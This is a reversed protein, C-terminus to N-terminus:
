PVNNGPGLTLHLKKDHNQSTIENRFQKECVKCELRENDNDVKNIGEANCPDDEHTKDMKSVQVANQATNLEVLTLNLKLEIEEFENIYKEQIDNLQKCLKNGETKLIIKKTM